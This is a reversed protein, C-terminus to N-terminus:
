GKLLKITITLKLLLAFSWCIDLIAADFAADFIDALASNGVIWKLIWWIYGDLWHFQLRVALDFVFWLQSEDLRGHNLRLLEFRKSDGLFLFFSNVGAAFNRVIPATVRWKLLRLDLLLM